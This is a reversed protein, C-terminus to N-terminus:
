RWPEVTIHISKESDEGGVIKLARDVDKLGVVHTSILELPFKGSKMTNIALEVSSETPTTANSTVRDILWRCLDCYGKPHHCNDIASM